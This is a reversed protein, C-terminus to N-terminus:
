DTGSAPRRYPKLYNPPSMQRAAEDPQPEGFTLRVPIVGAWSPSGVDASADVPPGSRSKASCEHLDLAIVGTASLEGDAPARTDAGRGPVIHEVLAVFARRKEAPDCVLRPRGFMVVSRYNMSHHFASRALVLGDLLTVTVCIQDSQTLATALRGGVAGHLYLCDRDRAYTIPIVVPAGADLFGVHAVLAEDLIADLARRDALEREPHRRLATRM